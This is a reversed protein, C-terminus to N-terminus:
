GRRGGETGVRREESRKTTPEEIAEPEEEPEEEIVEAPPKVEALNKGGTAQAIAEGALLNFENRISNELKQPTGGKIVVERVLKGTANYIVLTLDYKESVRGM